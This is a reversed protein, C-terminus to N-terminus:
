PEPRKVGTRHETPGTAPKFVRPTRVRLSSMMPVERQAKARLNSGALSFLCRQKVIGQGRVIRDATRRALGFEIGRVDAEITLDHVHNKVTVNPNVERM